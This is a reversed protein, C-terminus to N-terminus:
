SQGLLNAFLDPVGGPVWISVSWYIQELAYNFWPLLGSNDLQVRLAAGAGGGFSVGSRFFFQLVGLILSLWVVTVVFGLILGLLTNLPGTL